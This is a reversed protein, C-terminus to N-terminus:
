APTAAQRVLDPLLPISVVGPVHLRDGLYRYLSVKLKSCTKMLGLLVDRATRGATSMTGGSIKRKTVCARIDNESGNTHLPIEPHQLVRLLEHKRRHLRALLRDLTAYDTQRRFIRDFRARLAAARRPCPDCAWAKLDAYLWWILARTVEVARRQEPTAPVLKHVLQEAHVWCLAHTGVRFQGAGDSVIVTGAAGSAADPTLLGHHCIAGWLAGQTAIQVPDPTITLTDIGLRALYATWAAADAFLKTPHTDLLAMVPGALGHGRMYDLAAANVVYDTHGARLLSLFAERSKSPGTRFVAFRDDGVQTTFGDKRAHRAATDDVTIWRATALGARLVAQDEAVFDDLPEALLRVVQRKSIEVGIGNLLATLRETTVQGQAHLALVFRRLEPGFGGVIGAPLDALVTEGSPLLWRERRYRIVEASLRLDRVLIDEYGKFRSGAPVAAKCVREATIADRDRKVGRPPKSRKAGKDAAGPQTAQEMGSPWSPPRPPLGKLRAVEGRLAQNETRLAAITAHQAEAGSRLAANDSQLRQVEGVLRGVVERLEALLFVELSAADPLTM